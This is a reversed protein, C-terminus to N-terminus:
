RTGGATQIQDDRVMQPAARTYDLDDIRVIYGAAQVVHTVEAPHGAFRHGDAITVHDGVRFASM